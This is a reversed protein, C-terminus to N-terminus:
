TSFNTQDEASSHTLTLQNNAPCTAVSDGCVETEHEPSGPSKFDALANQMQASVIRRPYINAALLNTAWNLFREIESPPIFLVYFIPCILFQPLQMFIWIGIHFIIGAFFFYYQVGKLRLENNSFATKIRIDRTAFGIPCTFEFAVTSFALFDFIVSPLKLRMVAFALNSSFNSSMVGKIVEGGNQWGPSLAKYLGTSLYFLCIHIALLRTAWASTTPTAGIKKNGLSLVQDSPAICLLIFAMVALRDYSCARAGINLCFHYMFFGFALPAVVKMRYGVTFAVILVVTISYLAWAIWPAPAIDPIFLPSYVGENSYFLPVNTCSGLFYLLLYIGFLLRFLAIPYPSIEAFWFNTWAGAGRAILNRPDFM